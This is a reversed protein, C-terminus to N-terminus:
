LEIDVIRRMWVFGVLMGAAAAAVMVVGTTSELLGTVYSPNVVSLIVTLAVPLLGLVVASARGEATLTAVERRLRHRQAIADAVTDLVEALNGGAQQHVEVAVAVWHMEESEMRDGVRRLSEPLPRGLSTESAVRRLEPAVPGGVDDAVGAIAQSLPFGARLTGSLLLLVDPLDAAFAERRRRALVTLLGVPLATVTTATLGMVLPPAGLAFVLTAVAAAALLTAAVLESARVGLGAAAMRETLWTPTGRRALASATARELREATRRVGDVVFSADPELRRATGGRGAGGGRQAGTMESPAVDGSRPGGLHPALRRQIRWRRYHLPLFWASVVAVVLMAVPGIVM